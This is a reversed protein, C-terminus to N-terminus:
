GAWRQGRTIKGIATYHVGYRAGLVRHSVGGAAYAARIAAVDVATLHSAGNREGKAQRGKAVMDASNDAATGVFLHDPNCCPPNDCTHCLLEGVGLRGRLLLWALRHAPGRFGEFKAQGYPMRGKLRYGTWVWCGTRPDRQVHAEFYEGLTM